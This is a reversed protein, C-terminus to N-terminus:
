MCEKCCYKRGVLIVVTRVWVKSEDAIFTETIKKAIGSSAGGAIVIVRTSGEPGTCISTVVTQRRRWVVIKAKNARQMQNLLM